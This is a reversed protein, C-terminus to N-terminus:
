AGGKSWCFLLLHSVKTKSVNNELDEITSNLNEIQQKLSAIEEKDAYMQSAKVKLSEAEKSSKEHLDKYKRNDAKLKDIELAALKVKGDLEKLTHKMKEHEESIKHNAEIDARQKAVIEELRAIEQASIAQTEELAALKNSLNDFNAKLTNYESTIKQNEALLTAEQSSSDLPIQSNVLEDRLDEITQVHESIQKDKAAIIKELEKIKEALNM